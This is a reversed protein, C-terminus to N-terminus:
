NEQFLSLDIPSSPGKPNMPIVPALIVSISARLLSLVMVPLMFIMWHSWSTLIWCAKERTVLTFDPLVVAVSVDTYTRFTFLLSTNVSMLPKPLKVSISPPKRISSLKAMRLRSSREPRVVIPSSIKTTPLLANCSTLLRLTIVESLSSRNTKSLGDRVCHQPNYLKSQLLGGAQVLVPTPSKTAMKLLPAPQVSASM